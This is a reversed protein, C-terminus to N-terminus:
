QLTPSCSHASHRTERANRRATLPFLCTCRPSCTSGTCTSAAEITRGYASAAAVAGVYSLRAIVISALPLLLWIPHTALLGLLVVGGATWPPCRFELDLADREGSLSDRLAAPFFALLRSLLAVTDIGYRGGARDEAARLTNGLRTPLLRVADPLDRMAAGARAARELQASTPDHSGRLEQRKKLRTRAENQRERGWQVLWRVARSDGWYGEMLRVIRPQVPMLILAVTVVAFFLAAADGASFASVKLSLTSWQPAEGPAGSALVAAVVITASMAPLLGVLIFRAGLGGALGLYTM